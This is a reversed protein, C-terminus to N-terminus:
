LMLAKLIQEDPLNTKSVRGRTCSRHRLNDSCNITISLRAFM